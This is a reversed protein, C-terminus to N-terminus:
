LENRSQKVLQVYEQESIVRDVTWRGPATSANCRIPDGEPAYPHCIKDAEWGMEHDVNDIYWQLNKCDLDDHHKQMADLDHFELDKAEPKMKYFLDLHDKYWVRALRVYNKVVQMVNVDYPRQDPTRFLHGVRACPVIEIRGGCRWVKMTLEVHDGGWEYMGTDFLGLHQFWDKRMAFIGGSTGPSPYPEATDKLVGGPNTQILNLNWEFRWYGTAGKTYGQWNDAPIYDLFPMALTKPNVVLRQLLPQLWQRNVICHAEMFVLVPAKAAEVGKTKARILGERQPLALVNVKSSIAKLEKERTDPNGDSIFLFEEVLEDPTFHILARLTDSMHEWKEALWPIIISVKHDHFKALDDEKACGPPRSDPPYPFRHEPLDVSHICQDAWWRCEGNCWYHGNGQPCDACTPALHGGCHVDAGVNYLLWQGVLFWRIRIQKDM